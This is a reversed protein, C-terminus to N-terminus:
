KQPSHRTKSKMAWLILDLVRGILSNLVALEMCRALVISYRRKGKNKLSPFAVTVVDVDLWDYNVM